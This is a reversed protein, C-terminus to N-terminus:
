TDGLLAPPHRSPPPWTNIEAFSEVASVSTTITCYNQIEHLRQYHEPAYYGEDLVEIKRDNM